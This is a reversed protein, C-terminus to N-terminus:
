FILRDLFVRVLALGTDYTSLNGLLDDLEAAVM